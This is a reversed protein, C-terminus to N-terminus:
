RAVPEYATSLVGAQGAEAPSFPKDAVPRDTTVPQRWALEPLGSGGSGLWQWGLLAAAACAALCGAWRWRWAPDIDASWGGDQQPKAPSATEAVLRELVAAAFGASPPLVSEEAQGRLAAGVVLYSSWTEDMAQPQPGPQLLADLEDPHCEGDVLASVLESWDHVPGPTVNDKLPSNMYQLVQPMCGATM